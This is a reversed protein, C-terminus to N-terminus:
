AYRAYNENDSWFDHCRRMEEIGFLNRRLRTASGLGLEECLEFFGNGQEATGKRVAVASILPRSHEHEYVSIEGLIRGIEASDHDGEWTLGLQCADNIESYSCMQRKRAVGILFTRVDTRM